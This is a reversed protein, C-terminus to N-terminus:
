ALIDLLRGETRAIAGFVKASAKFQVEAEKLSVLGDVLDNDDGDIQAGGRVIDSAALEFKQSAVHLGSAASHLASIM